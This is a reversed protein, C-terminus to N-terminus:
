NREAALYYVAGNESKKKLFGEDILERLNRKVTRDSLANFEDIIEKTRADPFKKIFNYIREKSSDSKLVSRMSKNKLIPKLTRIEPMLPLTGNVKVAPVAKSAGLNTQKLIHLKFKLLNRQALLLPTGDSRSNHALLELYDLINDISNALSQCSINHSAEYQMVYASVMNSIKNHLKQALFKDEIKTLLKALLIISNTFKLIDERGM